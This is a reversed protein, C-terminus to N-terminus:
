LGSFIHGADAITNPGCKVSGSRMAGYPLKLHAVPRGFVSCM